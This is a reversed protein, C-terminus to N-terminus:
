VHAAPFRLLNWWKAEDSKPDPELDCNLSVVRKHGEMTENVFGSTNKHEDAARGRLNFRRAAEALLQQRSLPGEELLAAIPPLPTLRFTGADFWLEFPGPTPANRLKGVEMIVKNEAKDKRKLHVVLSADEVLRNSGRVLQNSGRVLADRSPKVDHRVILVGKTPLQGIGDLFKSVVREDNPNGCATLMTNVTDWVLIELEKVMAWNGICYLKQEFTPRRRFEEILTRDSIELGHPWDLKPYMVELRKGVELDDMETEFIGVRRAHPVDWMRLLKTQGAVAEAIQYSLISKFEGELSHLVAIGGEQWLNEIIWPTKNEKAYRILKAITSEDRPAALPLVATDDAAQDSIEEIVNGIKLLSKSRRTGWRRKVFM